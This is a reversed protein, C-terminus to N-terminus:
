NLTIMPSNEGGLAEKLPRFWHLDGSNNLANGGVKQSGLQNYPSLSQFSVFDSGQDLIWTKEASICM